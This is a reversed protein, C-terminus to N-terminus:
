VAVDEFEPCNEKLWEVYYEDMCEEKEFSAPPICNLFEVCEYNVEPQQPQPQPQLPLRKYKSFFYNFIVLLILIVFLAIYKREKVLKMFM